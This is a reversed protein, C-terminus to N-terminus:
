SASSIIVEGITSFRDNLMAREFKCAQTGLRILTLNSYPSLEVPTSQSCYYIDTVSAHPNHSRWFTNNLSPPLYVTQGVACHLSCADKADSSRDCTTDSNRAADILCPADPVAVNSMATAHLPTVALSVLVTLLWVRRILKSM